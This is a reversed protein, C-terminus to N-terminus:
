EDKYYRVFAECLKKVNDPTDANIREAYICINRRPLNLNLQASFIPGYIFVAKHISANKSPNLGPILSFNQKLTDRIYHYVVTDPYIESSAEHSIYKKIGMDNTEKVESDNKLSYRKLAMLQNHYNELNLALKKRCFSDANVKAMPQQDDISNFLLGYKRGSFRVIYRYRWLKQSANVITTDANSGTSDVTIMGVRNEYIVISDALYIKFTVTDYQVIGDNLQGPYITRILLGQVGGNDAKKQVACGFSFCVQFAAVGM